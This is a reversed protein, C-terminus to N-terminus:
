DDIPPPTFEILPEGIKKRFENAKEIRDKKEKIKEENWYLENHIYEYVRSCVFKLSEGNSKLAAKCIAKTQKYAPIYQLAMGNQEVATICISETMYQEEVFRLTMGDRSIAELVIYKNQKDVYVLNYPKKYIAGYASNGSYMKKHNLDERKKRLEKAKEENTM